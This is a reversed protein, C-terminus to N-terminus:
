PAKSSLDFSNQSPQFPHSNPSIHPTPFTVRASTLAFLVDDVKQYVRRVEGQFRDEIFELTGKTRADCRQEQETLIVRFIEAQRDVAKSFEKPMGEIVQLLRNSFQQQKETSERSSDALRIAADGVDGEAKAKRWNSIAKIAKDVVAWVLGGSLLAGIEEINEILFTSIDM